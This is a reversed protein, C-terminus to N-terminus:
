LLRAWQGKVLASQHLLVGLDALPDQPIDLVVRLDGVDDPRMVLADIAHAIGVADM